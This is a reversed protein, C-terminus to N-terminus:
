IHKYIGKPAMRKKLAKEGDLSSTQINCVAQYEKNADTLRNEEAQGQEGSDSSQILIVDAPVEEGDNIKILDGVKINNATFEIAKGEAM